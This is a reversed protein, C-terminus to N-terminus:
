KICTNHVMHRYVSDDELCPASSVKDWHERNCNLPVEKCLSPFVCGLNLVMVTKIPLSVEHPQKFCQLNQLAEM